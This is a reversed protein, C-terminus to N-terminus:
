EIVVRKGEKLLEHLHHTDLNKANLVITEKVPVPKYVDKIEICVVRGDDLILHALTGFIEVHSIKTM